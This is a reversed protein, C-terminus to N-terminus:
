TYIIRIVHFQDPEHFHPTLCKSVERKVTTFHLEAYRVENLRLQGENYHHLLNLSFEEIEVQFALLKIIDASYM